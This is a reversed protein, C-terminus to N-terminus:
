PCRSRKQIKGILLSLFLERSNGGGAIYLTKDMCAMGAFRVARPVPVPMSWSNTEPDFVYIESKEEKGQGTQILVFIKDEVSVAGVAFGSEPLDAKREWKDLIPDYAEVIPM